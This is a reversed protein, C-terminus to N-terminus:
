QTSAATTYPIFRHRTFWSMAKLGHGRRKLRKLVLVVAPSGKPAGPCFFVVFSYVWRTLVPNPWPVRGCVIYMQIRNIHHMINADRMQTKTNALTANLPCKTYINFM